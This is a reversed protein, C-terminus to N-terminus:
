ALKAFRGGLRLPFGTTIPLLKPGTANIRRSGDPDAAGKM